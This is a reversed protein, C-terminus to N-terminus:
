CRLSCLTGLVVTTAALSLVRPWWKDGAVTRLSRGKERPDIVMQACLRGRGGWTVLFSIRQVRRCIRIVCVRLHGPGRSGLATTLALQLRAPLGRRRM